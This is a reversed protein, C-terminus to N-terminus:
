LTLDTETTTIDCIPAVHAVPDPNDRFVVSLKEIRCDALDTLPCGLMAAVFELPKGRAIELEISAGAVQLAHLELRLDFDQGKKERRYPYTALTLFHAAQPALEAAYHDPLTVRYRVREMLSTLSPSKPLIAWAELMQMGPPLVENLCRLLEDPSFGATVEMDLYEAYSEVGVSLATAFSFKPHPHFGQSYRIPINARSVARTFMTILELHSLFRLRATKSFRARIKLAGEDASPEIPVRDGPTFTDPAYCHRKVQKFDCVGCGPCRGTRCDSTAEEQLALQREM